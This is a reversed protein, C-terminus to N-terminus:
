RARFSARGRGIGGGRIGSDARRRGSAAARGLVGEPHKVHFMGLAFLLSARAGVAAESCSRFGVTPGAQFPYVQGFRCPRGFQAPLLRPHLRALAFPGGCALAVVLRAFEGRVGGCGLPAAFGGLAVDGRGLLVGAVARVFRGRVAFGVDVRVFRRPWAGGIWLCVIRVFGGFAAAFGDACVGPMRGHLGEDGGDCRKVLAPGVRLRVALGPADPVHGDWGGDAKRQDYGGQQDNCPESRCRPKQERLWVAGVGGAERVLGQWRPM